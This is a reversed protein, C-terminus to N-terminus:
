HHSKSHSTQAAPSSDDPSASSASSGGLLATFGATLVEIIAKGVSVGSTPGLQAAELETVAKASAAQFDAVKDGM